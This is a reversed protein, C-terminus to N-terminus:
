AFTQVPSGPPDSVTDGTGGDEFVDSFLSGAQADYTNDNGYLYVFNYSTGGTFDNHGGYGYALEVLNTDNTFTDGGGSGGVYTINYVQSASFEESQGNLSVKVNHTSPDISVEAVNGSSKPATISLNGYTLSVGPISTSVATLLARGELTECGIRTRHGGTPRRHRARSGESVAGIIRGLFRM